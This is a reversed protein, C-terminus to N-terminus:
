YEVTEVIAGSADDVFVTMYKREPGGIPGHTPISLGRVTVAWVDQVVNAEVHTGM